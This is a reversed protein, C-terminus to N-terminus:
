GCQRGICQHHATGSVILFACFWQGLAAGPTFADPARLGAATSYGNQCRICFGGTLGNGAAYHM